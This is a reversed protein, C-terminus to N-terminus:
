PGSGSAVFRSVIYEAAMIVDPNTAQSPVDPFISADAVYLGEIGFVRGRQDVVAQPDTELGMPATASLHLNSKVTEHQEKVKQLTTVALRGGKVGPVEETVLERLPTEKVLARSLAMAELMRTVDREDDLLNLDINPKLLPNRSTLTLSGRSWPRSVTYFLQFGAGQPFLAPDVFHNNSIYIDLEGPEALTSRTWLTTGIPPHDALGPRTALMIGNVPQEQLNQGVPLDQHVPIDLDRLDSGPGVGSRLLIAPTGAAGACLFVTGAHLRAGDALQVGEARGKGLLIKDVTAMGAIDLNPRARVQANLYVMGTNQRVGAVVNLPYVAVGHQHAGNVDAIEAFGHARCAYYFAQSAPSLSALTPLRVPVPGNRGHWGDDGYDASELAKFWPLVKEFSWDTLGRRVWRDFDSKPARVFAGANIASGGGLVKARLHDATHDTGTSAGQEWVYDGGGVSYSKALAPPYGDPAFIPGAELLLVRRDPNESLRAAVAAGGSGGGVVIVDWRRDTLDGRDATTTGM